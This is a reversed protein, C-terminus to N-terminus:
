GREIQEMEKQFCDPCMGHSLHGDLEVGDQILKGCWACVTKIQKEEM